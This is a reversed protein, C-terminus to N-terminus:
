SDTVNTGYQACSRCSVTGIKIGDLLLECSTQVFREDEIMDQLSLVGAGLPHGFEKDTARFVTLTVHGNMLVAPDHVFPNISFDEAWIWSEGNLTDASPSEIDSELFQSSLMVVLSDLSATAADLHVTLDSLTVDVPPLAHQFGIAYNLRPLLSYVAHVPRHDSGYVDDISTYRELHLDELHPFSRVLVRDTWSPSQNRKNSIEQITRMWRYSPTFALAGEEFGCFVRGAKMEIKLQDAKQLTSWDKKSMLKLTTEYDTIVRYNLDGLWFVHHFQALMNHDPHGLKIGRVIKSYMEARQPVREARAALHSCVFCLSTDDYDFSVAVAGKNGLVDGVGTALTDSDINTVRRSLDKRVLVIVAMEWLRECAVCIYRCSTDSAGSDSRSADSASRKSNDGVVADSSSSRSMGPAGTSITSGRANKNTSTMALLPSVDPMSASANRTSAVSDAHVHQQSKSDGAGSHTGSDDDNSSISTSHRHQPQEEDEEPIVQPVGVSNADRGVHIELARIWEKPKSCEQLGIVYVDHANPPIFKDFMAVNDSPFGAGGVNWTGVFLSIPAANFPTNTVSHRLFVHPRKSMRRRRKEAAVVLPPAIGAAVAAGKSDPAVAALAAGVQQLAAPSPLLTQSTLDLGVAIARCRAVFRERAAADSFVFHQDSRDRFQLCVSVKDANSREVAVLRGDGIHTDKAAKAINLSRIVKRRQNLYLIRKKKVGARNVKLVTFRLTDPDPAFAGTEDKITIAPNMTHIRECFHMRDFVDAFYITFPRQDLSERFIIYAAHKDKNDPPLEVVQVDKFRIEKRFKRANDLSLLTRRASNLVLIREQRIGFRNKKKVHYDLYDGGIVSDNHGSDATMSISVSTRRSGIMGNDEYDDDDLVFSRPSDAPSSHSHHSRGHAGAPLQLHSGHKPQSIQAADTAHEDTFMPNATASTFGDSKIEEVVRASVSPENVSRMSTGRERDRELFLQNQKVMQSTIQSFEEADTANGFTIKYDRTNQHTFQLVFTRKDWLRSKSTPIRLVQAINVVPFESKIIEKMDLFRIARHKMDLVLYRSQKLGFRTSKTVRFKKGVKEDLSLKSFPRSLAISAIDPRPELEQEDESSSELADVGSTVGRGLGMTGRRHNASELYALAGPSLDANADEIQLEAANGASHSRPRGTTTEAVQSPANTSRPRASDNGHLVAVLTDVQLKLEPNVSSNQSNANIADGTSTNARNESGDEDDDIMVVRPVSRSTSSASASSVTSASALPGDSPGPPPPGDPPGPVDDSDVRSDNSCIVVPAPGSDVSPPPPAQEEDSM